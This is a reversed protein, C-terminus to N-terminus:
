QTHGGGIDLHPHMEKRYASHPINTKRPKKKERCYAFTNKMVVDGPSGYDLIFRLGQTGGLNMLGFVEAPGGSM